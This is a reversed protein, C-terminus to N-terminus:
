SLADVLNDLGMGRSGKVLVVSDQELMNQLAQRAEQWNSVHDVIVNVPMNEKTSKVKQGVLVM